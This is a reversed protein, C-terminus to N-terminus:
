AVAESAAMVPEASAATLVDALIDLDPAGGCRSVGFWEGLRGFATIVEDAVLVIGHRDALARLGAWHRLAAHNPEHGTMALPGTV